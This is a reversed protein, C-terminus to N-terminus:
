GRWWVEKGVMDGWRGNSRRMEWQGEERGVM